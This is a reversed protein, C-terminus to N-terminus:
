EPVEAGQVETRTRELPRTASMGREGLCAQRNPALAAVNRALELTLTEHKM